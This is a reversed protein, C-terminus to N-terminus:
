FDYKLFYFFILIYLINLLKYLYNIIFVYFFMFFVYFSINQGFFYSKKNFFLCGSIDPKRATFTLSGFRYPLFHVFILSFM